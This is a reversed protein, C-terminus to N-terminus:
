NDHAVTRENEARMWRLVAEGTVFYRGCRRRADLRKANVERVLQGHTLNCADALSELPVIADPKLDISHM